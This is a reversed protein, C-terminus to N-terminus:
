PDFNVEEGHDQSMAAVFEDPEPVFGEGALIGNVGVLKAETKEM